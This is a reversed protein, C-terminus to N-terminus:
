GIKEKEHELKDIILKADRTESNKFRLVRIGFDKLVDERIKDYEIQSKHIEGDIEIVLKLKSCYFDSIVFRLNDNHSFFIPYQRLFRYGNIQGKRILSWVKKEAKTPNNRLHRSAEKAKLYVDKRITL